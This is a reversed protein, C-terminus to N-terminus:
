QSSNTRQNTPTFDYQCIKVINAVKKSFFAGPQWFQCSKQLFINQSALKAVKKCFHGPNGFKGVKKKAFFLDGESVIFVLLSQNATTPTFIM